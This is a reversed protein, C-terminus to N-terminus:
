STAGKAALKIEISQMLNENIQLLQYLISEGKQTGALDQRGYHLTLAYHLLDRMHSTQIKCNRHVNEFYTLSHLGQMLNAQPCQSRISPTTRLWTILDLLGQDNTLIYVPQGAVVLDLARIALSLDNDSVGGAGVLKKPIGPLGRIITVQAPATAAQHLLSRVHGKAGNLELPKLQAFFAGAPAFENAVCVTSHLRADPTFQRIIALQEEIWTKFVDLRQATPYKSAARDCFYQSLLSLVNNDIILYAELSIGIVPM